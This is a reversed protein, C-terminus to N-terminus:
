TNRGRLKQLVGEGWKPTMRLLTEDNLMWHHRLAAGIHLVLLAIMTYALWEHQESITDSIVKRANQDTVGDFFPMAPLPLIGFLITPISKPSASVLAWGSLPIALMLIYFLFHIIRVSWIELPKLSLPLAPAPSVFRWVIRLLTLALVTIGISKHLQYFQFKLDNPIDDLLLGLGLNGIILLGILWHLIMAVAHYRTIVKTM